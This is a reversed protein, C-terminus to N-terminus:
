NNPQIQAPLSWTPAVVEALPVVVEAASLFPIMIMISSSPGGKWGRNVYFRPFRLSIEGVESPSTSCLTEQPRDTPAGHHFSPFIWIMFVFQLLFNFIRRCGFVMAFHHFCRDRVMLSIFVSVVLLPFVASYDGAVQAGDSGEEPDFASITLTLILMIAMHARFTVVHTSAMTCLIVVCPYAALSTDMGFRAGLWKVLDSFFHAAAAGTFLPGWFHGGIIGTGLSLGTVVIKAITILASCGMSYGVRVAAGDNPDIM